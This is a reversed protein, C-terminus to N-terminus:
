KDCSEYNEKIIKILNKCAIRFNFEEVTWEILKSVVKRRAVKHDRCM